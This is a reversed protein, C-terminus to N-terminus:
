DMLLAIPNKPDPNRQLIQAAISNSIEDLQRYTWQHHITCVAPREAYASAVRAFREPIAEATEEATTPEMLMTFRRCVVSSNATAHGMNRRALVRPKGGEWRRLRM